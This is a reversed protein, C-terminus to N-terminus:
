KTCIQSKVSMNHLLIDYYKLEIDEQIMKKSPFDICSM